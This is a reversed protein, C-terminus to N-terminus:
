RAMSARHTLTASLSTYRGNPWGPKIFASLSSNASVRGSSLQTTVTAFQDHEQYESTLM